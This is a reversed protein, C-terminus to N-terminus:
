GGGLDRGALSRAGLLFPALGFALAALTWGAALALPPLPVGLLTAALQRLERSVLLVSTAALSTSLVLAFIGGPGLAVAIANPADYRPFLAGLGVHLAPLALAGALGAALSAAVAGPHPRVLAASAGILVLAAVAAAVARVATRIALHRVPSLPLTRLLLSSRGDSSVAPYCFRLSLASVLFLALGTQLGALVDRSASDGSPLLRLNLLQLLLVAVLSGLQAPTSADRFLSASEARVLASELSRVPRRTGRATRASAVSERAEQWLRLHLKAFARTSVLTVALSSALLGAAVTFGGADGFLTRTVAHAASSVPDLASSSPATTGLNELLVLAEVPDFLREPRAGRAGLLAAALGLASVAASFLRARRPPVLRVLLLALLSGLVGAALVLAALVTLSAAAALGPRSSSGAAVAFVPIALLLTPASASLLTRWVQRAFLRRHPIPLVVLAELESSLFLTSVATTLTGLILLLAASLFGAFLLREVLYEPVLSPLHALAARGASLGARTVLAAGLGFAAASGLAAAAAFSGRVGGSILARGAGKASNALAVGGPSLLSM